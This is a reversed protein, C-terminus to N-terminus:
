LLINLYISFLFLHEYIFAYRSFSLLTLIVYILRGFLNFVENYAHM